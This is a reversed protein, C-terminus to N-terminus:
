SVMSVRVQEWLYKTVRNYGYIQPYNHYTALIQLDEFPNPKKKGPTKHQAKTDRLLLLPLCYTRVYTGMDQRLHHGTHIM